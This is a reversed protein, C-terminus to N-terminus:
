DTVCATGTEVSPVQPTLLLVHMGAVNPWADVLPGHQELLPKQPGSLSLADQPEPHWGPYPYQLGRGHSGADYM